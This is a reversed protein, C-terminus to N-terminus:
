QCIPQVCTMKRTVDFLIGILDAMEMVLGDLKKNLQILYGVFNSTSKTAASQLVLAETTIKAKEFREEVQESCQTLLSFVDAQLTINAQNCEPLFGGLANIEIPECRMLQGTLLSGTSSNILSAKVLDCIQNLKCNYSRLNYSIAKSDIIESTTKKQFVMKELNKMYQKEYESMKLNWVERCPSVDKADTQAFLNQPLILALALWGLIIKKFM